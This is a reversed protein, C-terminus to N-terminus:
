LPPQSPLDADDARSLNSRGFARRREDVEADRPRSPTLRSVLAEIQESQARVSAALARLEERLHEVTTATPVDTARWLAAFFAGRWANNLRQWRLFGSASQALVAGFLRSGYLRDISASGLHIAADYGTWATESVTREETIGLARKAAVVPLDVLSATLLESVIESMGLNVEKAM